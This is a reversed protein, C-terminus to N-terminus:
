VGSQWSKIADFPHILQIINILLSDHIWFILVIEILIFLALSLWFGLKRVIIFGAACSLIDGFSNLVSDGFYDLALTATRYREIISNTNELIEWASEIFVAFFMLWKLSIRKGFILTLFWFYLFGHLIHTFSYPDFFHQSNHKGWADSSWIILPSDWKCWWIRGQIHLQILAAIIILFTLIWPLYDRRDDFAFLRFHGTTEPKFEDSM